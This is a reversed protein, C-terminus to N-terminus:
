QKNEKPMPFATSMDPNGANIEAIRDQHKQQMWDNNDRDICSQVSLHQDYYNM